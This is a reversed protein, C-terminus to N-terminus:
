KKPIYNKLVDSFTKNIAFQNNLSDKYKEDWEMEKLLNVSNDSIGLVLLKDEIKVISVYRKPLISLTYIVKMGFPDSKKGGIKLQTRKVFYLAVLLIALIAIIPFLMKLIDWTNM